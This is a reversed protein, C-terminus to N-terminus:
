RIAFRWSPKLGKGDRIWSRDPNLEEDAYASSVPVNPGGEHAANRRWQVYNHGNGSPLTIDDLSTAAGLNETVTVPV